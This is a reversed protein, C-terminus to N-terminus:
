IKLDESLELLIKKYIYIYCSLVDRNLAMGLGASLIHIQHSQFSLIIIDYVYVYLYCIIDTPCCM